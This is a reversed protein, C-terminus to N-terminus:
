SKWNGQKSKQETRKIYNHFNLSEDLHLGLAKPNPNYSIDKDNLKVKLLTSDVSISSRSFLCVETKEPSVKMRWKLTWTLLKHLEEEIIGTLASPNKGAAWITRDDAFKVKQCSIDRYIDQLFINFLIPLIVSGQPLGVHSAFEAGYSGKLYCRAARDSLFNSIWSWKKQNWSQANEGATWGAM